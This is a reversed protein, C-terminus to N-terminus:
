NVGFPPARNVPATRGDYFGPVLCESRLVSRSPGHCLTDFDSRVDMEAFGTDGACPGGGGVNQFENAFAHREVFDDAVVIGVDLGLVDAGAHPVGDLDEANLVQM